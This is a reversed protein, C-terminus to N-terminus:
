QPIKPPCLPAQVLKETLTETGRSIIDNRKPEGSENSLPNTALNDYHLGLDSMTPNKTSLTASPCTKRQAKPGGALIMGRQSEVKM